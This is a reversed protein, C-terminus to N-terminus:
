IEWIQLQLLQLVMSWRFCLGLLWLSSSAQFLLQVKPYQGSIICVLKTNMHNKQTMTSTWWPDIHTRSKKAM